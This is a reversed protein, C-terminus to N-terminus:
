REQANLILQSLSQLSAFHHMWEDETDDFSLSFTDEIGLLLEVCDLSDLGLGDKLLPAELALTQVREPTLRLREVLLKRLNMIVDDQNM